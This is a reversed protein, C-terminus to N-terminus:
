LWAPSIRTSTGIRSPLRRLYLMRGPTSEGLHVNDQSRWYTTWLRKDAVEDGPPRYATVLAPLEQAAKRKFYRKLDLASVHSSARHRLASDAIAAGDVFLRAVPGDACEVIRARLWRVQSVDDFYPHLVAAVEGRSSLEFANKKSNCSHCCPVLNVALVTAESFQAKPLFHDLTEPERDSCYPCRHEHARAM